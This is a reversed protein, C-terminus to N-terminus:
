LIHGLLSLERRLNTRFANELISKYHPDELNVEPAINGLKSNISELYKQILKLSEHRGPSDQRTSMGRPNLFYSVHIESTKLFVAGQIKCRIWFDVDGASELNSDFYGITSHLSRRWMPANHPPNIGQVLLGYLTVAPLNSHANVSKIVDWSFGFERAYFFDQYVVDVWPNQKLYNIQIELSDNSRLDDANMNTIFTSTSAKIMRNWSDYIGIRDTSFEVIINSFASAVRSLVEIEFQSPQVAIILFESKMFATQMLINRLLSLLYKDSKYLSTIVAVEYGNNGNKQQANNQLSDIQLYFEKLDIREKKYISVGKNWDENTIVKEGMIIIVDSNCNTIKSDDAIGFVFRVLATCLTDNEKIYSRLKPYKEGVKRRIKILMTKIKNSKNKYKINLKKWIESLRRLPVTLKWSSSALVVRQQERLNRIEEQLAGIKRTYAQYLELNEASDISNSSVELSNNSIVEVNSTSRPDSNILELYKKNQFEKARSMLLLEELANELENIKKYLRIEDIRIFDDMVNPPNCFRNKLETKHTSLYFENLGDEYVCFYNNRELLIKCEQSSNEKTIPHLKEIVIIWPRFLNLDMSRLVNLEMGEVDIKLFHIEGKVGSEVIIQDLRKSKIDEFYGKIGKEMYESIINPDGTALELSHPVFYKLTEEKESVLYKKNIDRPREQQLKSFYQSNPEVNLGSWGLDYFLKTVSLYESDGAGVDVYTGNKVDWLAKYLVIDELNQAYSILSV